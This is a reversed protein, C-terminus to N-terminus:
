QSEAAQVGYSLLCDKVFQKKEEQDEVGALEAQETCFAVFDETVSADDGTAHVANFISYLSLFALLATRKM